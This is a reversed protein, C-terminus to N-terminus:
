AEVEGREMALREELVAVLEAVADPDEHRGERTLRAVQRHTWRWVEDGGGRMADLTEATTWLRVALGILVDHRDAM